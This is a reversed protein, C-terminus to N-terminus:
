ITFYIMEKLHTCHWHKSPLLSIFTSCLYAIMTEKTEIECTQSSRSSHSDHILLWEIHRSASKPTIQCQCGFIKLVSGEASPFPNIRDSILRLLLLLAAIISKLKCNLQCLWLQNNPKLCVSIYKSLMWSCHCIRRNKILFSCFWIEKYRM